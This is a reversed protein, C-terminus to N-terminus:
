KNLYDFIMYGLLSLVLMAELWYHITLDKNLKTVKNGLAILHRELDHDKVKLVYEDDPTKIDALPDELKKEVAKEAVPDDPTEEEFDNEIQDEIVDDLAMEFDDYNRM